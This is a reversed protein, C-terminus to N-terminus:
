ISKSVNGGSAFYSFDDLPSFISENLIVNAYVVNGDFCYTRRAIYLRGSVQQNWVRLNGYDFQTNHQQQQIEM